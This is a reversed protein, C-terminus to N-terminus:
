IIFWHKKAVRNEIHDKKSLNEHLLVGLFKISRVREVKHKKILLTPLLLPLDDKENKEPNIQRLGNMITKLEQNVLSLM